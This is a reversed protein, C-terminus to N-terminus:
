PVESLIVEFASGSDRYRVTFFGWGDGSVNGSAGSEPFPGAVSEVFGSVAGAFSLSEASFAASTERTIASLVLTDRSGLAGRMRAGEDTVLVASVVYYDAKAVSEWLLELEDGVFIEAPASVAAADPVVVTATAFGYNTTIALSCRGGPQWLVLDDDLEALRDLGHTPGVVPLERGNIFPIFESLL